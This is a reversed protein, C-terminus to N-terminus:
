TLAPRVQFVPMSLFRKTELNICRDRGNKYIKDDNTPTALVAWKTPDSYSGLDVKASRDTTLGGRGIYLVLWTNVGDSFIATHAKNMTNLNIAHAENDYITGTPTRDLFNTCGSIANPDSIYVFQKAGTASGWETWIVKHNIPDYIPSHTFLGTPCYCTKVVLNVDIFHSNTGHGETVWGIFNDDADWIPEISEQVFTYRSNANTVSWASGNYKLICSREATGAYPAVIGVIKGGYGFFQAWYNIKTADTIVTKVLTLLDAQLITVNDFARTVALLKCNTVNRFGVSSGNWEGLAILIKDTEFDYGLPFNEPCIPVTLGSPTAVDITTESSWTPPTTSFDITKKGLQRCIQSTTGNTLTKPYIVDYTYTGTKFCLVEDAPIAYEYLM